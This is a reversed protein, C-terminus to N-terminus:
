WDRNMSYRKERSRECDHMTSSSASTSSSATTPRSWTAQQRVAHFPGFTEGLARDRGVVADDEVEAELEVMSDAGEEDDTDVPITRVIMIQRFAGEYCVEVLFNIDGDPM